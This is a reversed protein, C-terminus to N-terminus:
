TRAQDGGGNRKALRRKHQPRITVLRAMVAKVGQMLTQTSSGTLPRQRPQPRLISSIAAHAVMFSPSLDRMM